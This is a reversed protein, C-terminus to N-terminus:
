KIWCFWLKTQSFHPGQRRSASYGPENLPVSLDQIHYILRQTKHRQGPSRQCRVSPCRRRFFPARASTEGRASWLRIRRRQCRWARKREHPALLSLPAPLDDDCWWATEKTCCVPSQFLVLSRFLAQRGRPNRSCDAWRFAIFSFFVNLLKYFSSQTCASTKSSNPKQWRSICLPNESLLTIRRQTCRENLRSLGSLTSSAGSFFRTKKDHM